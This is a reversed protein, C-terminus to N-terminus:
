RLFRSSLVRAQRVTFLIGVQNVQLHRELLSAPNTFEVVSFTAQKGNLLLVSEDLEDILLSIIDRRSGM